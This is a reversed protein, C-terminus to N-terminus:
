GVRTGRLVVTEADDLVGFKCRRRADISTVFVILLSYSTAIIFTSSVSEHHNPHGPRTHRGKLPCCALPALHPTLSLEVLLNLVSKGERELELSTM